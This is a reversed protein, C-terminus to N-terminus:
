NGHPAGDGIAHTRLVLPVRVRGDRRECQWASFGFRFEGELCPQAESVRANKRLMRANEHGTAAAELRENDGSRIWSRLTHHGDVQALVRKLRELPAHPEGADNLGERRLGGDFRTLAIQMCKAVAGEIGNEEGIDKLM